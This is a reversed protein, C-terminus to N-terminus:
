YRTSTSVFVFISAQQVDVKVFRNTVELAALGPTQPVVDSGFGYTLVLGARTTTNESSFAAILTGGFENVHPLRDKDFRDGTSGPITPASSLNTYIGAAISTPTELRLEGGLAANVVWNRVVDNNLTSSALIGEQSPPPDILRYRVPGHISVDLSVTGEKPWEHAAGLRLTLGERTDGPVGQAEERQFESPGDGPAARTRRVRIGAQGFARVTPMTLVGGFYWGDGLRLKAGLNVQISFVSLNVRADATSFADNTAATSESCNIEERDRLNRYALFASFGVSWREDIRHALGGGFLFRRDSLSREYALSECGPFRDQPDLRSVISTQLNRSTPVFSGVSSVTKPPQGEERQMVNVGAATSPIIDLQNVVTEVDVVAGFAEGIGGNVEIGYLNTGVQVSGRSVDVLGAPNYFLGSPDDALATFAGGLGVARGGLPYRRYSTDSARSQAPIGLLSLLGLFVALTVRM